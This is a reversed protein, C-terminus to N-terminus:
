APKARNPVIQSHKATSSTWNKTMAFRNLFFFPQNPKILRSEGQNAKTGMKALHWGSARPLGDWRMKFRQDGEGYQGAHSEGRYFKFPVGRLPV